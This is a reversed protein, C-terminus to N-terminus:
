TGVNFTPPTALAQREKQARRSARSSEIHREHCPECRYASNRRPRGCTVCLGAAQRDRYRAPNLKRKARRCAPCHLRGQATRIKEVDHAKCRRGHLKRQAATARREALQAMRVARKAAARARICRRCQGTWCMEGCDGCPRMTRRRESEAQKVRRCERCRRRQKGRRTLEIITNEATYEHGEPCFRKRMNAASFSLGLSANEYDDVPDLHAPNVCLVNKCRRRLMLRRLPLPPTKSDARYAFRGANFARGDFQFRPYRGGM